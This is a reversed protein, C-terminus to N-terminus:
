CGPRDGIPQHYGLAGRLVMDLVDQALETEGVARLDGGRALRL